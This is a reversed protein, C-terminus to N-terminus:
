IERGRLRDRDGGRLVRSLVFSVAVIVTEVAPSTERLTATVAISLSGRAGAKVVLGTM